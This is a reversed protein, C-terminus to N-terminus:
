SFTANTNEDLTMATVNGTTGNAIVDFEWKSGHASATWNETAKGRNNAGREFSTGDHGM